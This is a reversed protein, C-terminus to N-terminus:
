VQRTGPGGAAPGCRGPRSGASRGPFLSGLADTLVMALRTQPRPCGRSPRPPRRYLPTASMDVCVVGVRIRV